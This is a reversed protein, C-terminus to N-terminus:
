LAASASSHINISWALPFSTIFCLVHSGPLPGPLPRCAPSICDTLRSPQPKLLHDWTVPLLSEVEAQRAERKGIMGQWYHIQNICQPWQQKTASDHRVRQSGLSQPGGREETWPIEWALISSHIRASILYMFDVPIWVNLCWSILCFSFLAQNEFSSLSGPFWLQALRCYQSLLLFDTLM